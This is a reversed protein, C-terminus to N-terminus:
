KDKGTGKPVLKKFDDVEIIHDTIKDGLYMIKGKFVISDGITLSSIKGAKAKPIRLRLDALIGESPEMKVRLVDPAWTEHDKFAPDQDTKTFTGKWLIIKGKVEEFNLNREPISNGCLKLYEEWTFAPKKASKKRSKQQASSTFAFSFLSLALFLNFLKRM